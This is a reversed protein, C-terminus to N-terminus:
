TSAYSRERTEDASGFVPMPINESVDILIGNPDEVMFHLRGCPADKPEDLLELGDWYLEQYAKRVDAVPMSLIMGQAAKRYAAPIQEHNKDIISLHMEKYGERKMIVFGEMELVSVYNFHDEYFNVTQAFNEACIIPYSYQSFM